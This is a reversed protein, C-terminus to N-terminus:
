LGGFSDYAKMINDQNLGIYRMTESPHRHNFIQQVVAVDKTRQYFHYGFTKRLTHTGIEELGVKKAVGNLIRYAQIRSIPKNTRTSKFLYQNPKLRLEMCYKEIERQLVPLIVVRRTKGTKQEKVRVFDKDLVDKVKLPLIDSIRLGSNIGFVFLFYDRYSRRLLHGKIEQVKELDRIPQVTNM